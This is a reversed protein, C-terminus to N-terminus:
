KCKLFYIWCREIDENLDNPRKRFYELVQSQHKKYQQKYFLQNENPSGKIGFIYELQRALFPNNEVQFCKISQLWSDINRTTLIFKSGPYVQDIKKYYLLWPIDQFADYQSAMNIAIEVVKDSLKPDAQLNEMCLSVELTNEVVIQFNEYCVQYGLIELAKGLSSTGTKPLGIGFVKSEHMTIM